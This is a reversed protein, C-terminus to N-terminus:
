WIEVKMTSSWLAEALICNRTKMVSCFVIGKGM